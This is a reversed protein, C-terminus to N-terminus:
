SSSRFPRHLTERALKLLNYTVWRKIAVTQVFFYAALIKTFAYVMKKNSSFCLIEEREVKSAVWLYKKQRKYNTIM